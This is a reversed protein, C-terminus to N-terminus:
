KFAQYAPLLLKEIAWGRRLRMFVTGPKLGAMEAWQTVGHTENGINLVRTRRTNRAQEARTAWRCNTPRYGSNNDIREITLHASYGSAFAWEMFPEFTQWEQCLTIGRGGYNVYGTDAQAQCRSKMHGWIRYLRTKAKASAYGHTRTNAGSRRLEEGLCGCSTAGGRRLEHGDINKEAGCDCLCTWWCTSQGGVVGAAMLVTLRGIRRGAMDIRTSYGAM